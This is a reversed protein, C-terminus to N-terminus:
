RLRVHLKENRWEQSPDARLQSFGDYAYAVRLESNSDVQRHVEQVRGSNDHVMTVKRRSVGTGANPPLEVEVLLSDQHDFTVIKGRADTREVPRDVQDYVTSTQHGLDNTVTALNDYNDYTMSLTRFGDATTLGKPVKVELLNRSTIGDFPTGEYVMESTDGLRNTVTEVLGDATYTLSTGQGKADVIEALNGNSDYRLETPQYDTPVGDVTVTPRQIYRVLNRHKPNLPADVTDAYAMLTLNGDKDTSSTINGFSDYEVSSVTLNPDTRRTVLFPNAPDGYEYTTILTFLNEDHYGPDGQVLTDDFQTLREETSTVRRQLDLNSLVLRPPSNGTLDEQTVEVWDENLSYARSIKTEGYHIEELVRGYDDEYVWETAVIGRPDIMQSIKGAENYVLEITEGEPNIVKQLRDPVVPDTGPYYLLQTLRGTIPHGDRVESPQGDARRTFYVNRGRSKEISDLHGSVGYVYAKFNGNRDVERRLRGDQDFEMTSQSKFTLVYRAETSGNDKQALVYRNRPHPQYEGSVLDWRMRGGGMGEYVLTGTAANERIRSNSMESWGYGLSSTPSTSYFSAYTAFLDGMLPISLNASGSQCSPCPETLIRGGKQRVRAESGDPHLSQANVKFTSRGFIEQELEDTPHDEFQDSGDWEVAISAFKGDTQWAFSSTPITGSEELYVDLGMVIPGPQLVAPNGLTLHWSVEASPTWGGPFITSNQGPLAFVDARITTIDTVPNFYPEDARVNGLALARIDFGGNAGLKGAPTGFGGETPPQGEVGFQHQATTTGTLITELIGPPTLDIADGLFLADIFFIDSNNIRDSIDDWDSPTGSEDYSRTELIKTGSSPRKFRWETDFLLLSVSPSPNRAVSIRWTYSVDDALTTADFRHRIGFFDDDVYAAFDTDVPVVDEIGLNSRRIWYYTNIM